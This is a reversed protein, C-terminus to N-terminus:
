DGGSTRQKPPDFDPDPATGVYPKERYKLEPPPNGTFKKIRTTKSNKISKISDLLIWIIGIILLIWFM